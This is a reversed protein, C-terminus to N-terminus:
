LFRLFHISVIPTYWLYIQDATYSWIIDDSSILISISLLHYQTM